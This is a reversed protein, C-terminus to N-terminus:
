PAVHTYPCAALLRNALVAVYPSADLFGPAICLYSPCAISRSEQNVSAICRHMSLAFSFLRARGGGAHMMSAARLVCKYPLRNLTGAHRVDRLVVLNSMDYMLTLVGTCLVIYMIHVKYMHVLAIHKYSTCYRYTHMGTGAYGVRREVPIYIYIYVCM